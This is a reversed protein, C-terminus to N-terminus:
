FYTDLNHSMNMHLKVFPKGKKYAYPLDRLVRDCDSKRSQDIPIQWLDLNYMLRSGDYVRQHLKDLEFYMSVLQEFTGIFIFPLENFLYKNYEDNGHIAVHEPPNPLFMQRYTPDIIHYNHYLFSHDSPVPNDSSVKTPMLKTKMLTNYFNHRALYYSLLYSSAGCSLRGDFTNHSKKHVKLRAKNHLPTDSNFQQLIPVGDNIFRYSRKCIRTLKDM